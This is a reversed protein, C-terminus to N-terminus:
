KKNRIAAEQAKKVWDALSDSEYISPPIEWYPMGKGKKESHFAKMGAKEFDPQNIEDVRFWLKNGGIKAFMIGDKFIGIGGFMKKHTIEGHCSLKEVVEKAFLEDVAM